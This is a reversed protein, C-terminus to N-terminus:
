AEAEAIVPWTAVMDCGCALTHNVITKPQGCWRCHFDDPSGQEQGGRAV